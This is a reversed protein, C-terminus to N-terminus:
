QLCRSGIFSDVEVIMLDGFGGVDQSEFFDNVPCLFSAVRKLRCEVRAFRKIWSFLYM